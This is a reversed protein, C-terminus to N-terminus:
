TILLPDRFAYTLVDYTTLIGVLRRDDDVIPLAHFLNERFVAAALQIEDEPHLTAVQRTMVEKVLLSRFIAENCAEAREDSFLTFTDQLKYYDSKSIIGVVRGEADLVPLHHLEHTQFIENVKEMSDEPQVFLVERTMVEKIKLHPNM